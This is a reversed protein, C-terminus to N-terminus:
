FILENFCFYSNVQEIADRWQETTKVIKEQTKQTVLLDQYQKKALRQAERALELRQFAERSGKVGTTKSEAEALEREAKLVEKTAQYYDTRATGLTMGSVAKNVLNYADALGLAALKELSMNKFVEPMLKQLEDLAKKRSSYSASLDTATKVYGKASSTTQEIQQQEDAMKQNFETQIDATTKTKESFLVMAGVLGAIVSAIAVYPNISM